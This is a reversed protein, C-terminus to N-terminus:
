RIGGEAEENDTPIIGARTEVLMRWVSTGKSSPHQKGAKSRLPRRKPHRNQQLGGASPATQPFSMETPASYGESRKLLGFPCFRRRVCRSHIGASWGTCAKIASTPHASAFRISLTCFRHARESGRECVAPACCSRRPTDGPRLVTLAKDLAPRSTKAGSVRISHRWKTSALREAHHSRPRLMAEVM